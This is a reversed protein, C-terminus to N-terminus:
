YPKLTRLLPSPIFAHSHSMLAKLPRKRFTDWVHLTGLPHSLAIEFATNKTRWCRSQWTVSSWGELAQSKEGTLTEPFQQSGWIRDCVHFRRHLYSAKETNSLRIRTIVFLLCLLGKPSLSFLSSTGSGTLHLTNNSLLDWYSGNSLSRFSNEIWM